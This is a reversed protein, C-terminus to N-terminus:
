EGATARGPEVTGSPPATVGASRADLWAQWDSRDSRGARVSAVVLFLVAVAGLLLVGTVIGEWGFLLPVTMDGPAPPTADSAM